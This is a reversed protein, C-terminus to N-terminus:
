VPLGDLAPSKNHKMSTLTEYIEQKSIPKDLFDKDVENLKPIEVSDLLNDM